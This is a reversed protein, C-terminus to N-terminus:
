NDLDTLRMYIKKNGFTETHKYEKLMTVTYEDLMTGNLFRHIISSAGAAGDGVFVLVFIPRM